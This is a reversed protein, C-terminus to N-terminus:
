AITSTSDHAYEVLRHNAQRSRVWPTVAAVDDADSARASRFTDTAHSLVIGDPTTFKSGRIRRRATELGAVRAVSPLQWLCRFLRTFCEAKDDFAFFVGAGDSAEIFYVLHVYRQDRRVLNRPPRYLRQAPRAARSGGATGPVVAMRSGSRCCSAATV